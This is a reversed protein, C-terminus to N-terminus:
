KRRAVVSVSGATFGSKQSLEAARVDPVEASSAPSRRPLAPDVVSIAVCIRREVVALALPQEVVHLLDEGLMQRDDIEGRRADEDRRGRADVFQRRRQERGCSSQDGSVSATVARSATAIIRKGRRPPQQERQTQHEGHRRRRQQERPQRGAVVDRSREADARM